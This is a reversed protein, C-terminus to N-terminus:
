GILSEMLTPDSNFVEMKMQKIAYFQGDKLNRVKFVKGYSGEGLPSRTCWDFADAYPFEDYMDQNYIIIHISEPLIM